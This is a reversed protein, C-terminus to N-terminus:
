WHTASIAEYTASANNPMTVAVTAGRADMAAGTAPYINLPTTTNGSKNSITIRLGSTATPLRVGEASSTTVTTVVAYSRTLATATGQTTGAAAVLEPTDSYLTGVTLTSTSAISGPAIFTTPTSITVAGTSASVSVQNATGTLSTVATGNAASTIRGKSDVTLNTLTYSGPTVATAVLTPNPYTGTLDGGAAGGPSTGSITVNAAATLQGQANVTFTPVETSSGYSGATVTTNAIAVSVNGSGYTITTGTGASLIPGTTYWQTASIAEYTASASNPITVAANTGASDIAAGTAPYVNLSTVANGSRNTIVVVTGAVATPLRVGTATGTTVTSVVHYSRTLATAAAQTTGAAAVTTPTDRYLTGVTLTSTSTISGPATFTTPTSITVSGTAASVSVQNATGALSTVATGNAASTIRGKSDVTLNTLTYSGPTVATAVLTPNPYTGTLDGGAAGGPSTGSITVNAAATLQGQANVTFSGVQTSSGYSGATVTTNAISVTGTSTIVGGDLGTGATISTVAAGNAASTIRGKSDVTLNTLTYSGPTVATAVLTPNPYTGTLDGGAAGGPSTGSITVNAAATLQGQANVTFTPSQTSSGYSGASVTTNAISITGSSTIPSGPSASLGTGTAISTVTGNTPTQWSAATASTATLVQGSSPATSSIVVNAGSTGIETARASNSTASLTKNTLTDSTARGVVTDSTNPYTLTVAGSPAPYNLTTINPGTGVAFQNTTNTASVNTTTIAGTVDLADDITVNGLSNVISTGGTDNGAALVEALTSPKSTSLIRAWTGGGRHLYLDTGTEDFAVQGQSGPNNTPPTSTGTVRILSTVTGPAQGTPM